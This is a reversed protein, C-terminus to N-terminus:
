PKYGLRDLLSAVRSQIMEDPDKLLPILHPIAAKASEGMLGLISITTSRLNKDEDKLLPILKPTASAGLEEAMALIGLASLASSRVQTNKDDLLLMLEPIAAKTAVGQYRMYTLLGAVRWRVDADKDKLLLIITPMAAKGMSQLAVAAGDRVDQAENRDQLLPILAPIATKGSEGMKGLAQLTGLRVDKNRDKLLPILKPIAVTGIKGLAAVAKSSTRADKSKLQQILRDIETARNTKSQAIAPLLPIAISDLTITSAVLLIPLLKILKAFAISGLLRQAFASM